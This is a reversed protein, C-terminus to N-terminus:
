VLIAHQLAHFVRFASDIPRSTEDGLDWTITESVTTTFRVIRAIGTSGTPSMSIMSTIPSATFRHVAATPFVRNAGGNVSKYFDSHSCGPGPYDANSHEILLQALSLWTYNPHHSIQRTIFTPFM